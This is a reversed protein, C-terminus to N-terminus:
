WLMEKSKVCGYHRVWRSVVMVDKRKQCTTRRSKVCCDRRWMVLTDKKNRCLWWTRRMRTSRTLVRASTSCNTRPQRPWDVASSHRSSACCANARPRWWRLSSSRTVPVRRSHRVTSPRTLLASDCSSSASWLRWWLHWLCRRSAYYRGCFM